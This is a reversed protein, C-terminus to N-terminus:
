RSWELTGSSKVCTQCVHVQLSRCRLGISVGGSVEKLRRSKERRLAAVTVFHRAPAPLIPTIVDVAQRSVPRCPDSFASCIDAHVLHLWVIKRTRGKSDLPSRERSVVLRSSVRTGSSFTRLRSANFIFAGDRGISFLGLSLYLSLSPPFLLLSRYSSVVRKM